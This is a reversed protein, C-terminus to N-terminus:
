TGHLSSDKFQRRKRNYYLVHFFDKKDKADDKKNQRRQRQRLGHDLDAFVHMMESCDIAPVSQFMGEFYPIFPGFVQYDILHTRGSAACRNQSTRAPDFRSLLACYRHRQIGSAIFTLNNLRYPNVAIIGFIGPGRKNDLSFDNAFLGPINMLFGLAVSISPM